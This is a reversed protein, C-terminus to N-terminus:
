IKLAKEIGQGLERSERKQREIIRDLRAQDAVVEAISDVQEQLMELKNLIKDLDSKNEQM